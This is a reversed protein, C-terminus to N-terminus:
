GAFSSSGSTPPLSTQSVQALGEAVQIAGADHLAKILEVVYLPNGGAGAVLSLLRPGPTAAAVEGALAAVAEDDLAQLRLHRGGRAALGEIVRDLEPVRSVPRLTALLAILLHALRRGVSRVARLTSPDAWHLDELALVVPGASALMELLGFLAEVAQLGLNPTQALPTSQWAPAPEATLM